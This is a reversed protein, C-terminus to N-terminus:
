NSNLKLIRIRIMKYKIKLLKNYKKMKIINKIKKRKKRMERSYNNAIM